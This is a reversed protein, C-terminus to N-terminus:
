VLIESKRLERMYFKIVLTTKFTARVDYISDEINNKDKTGLRDFDFHSFRSLDM